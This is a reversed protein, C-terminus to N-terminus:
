SPARRTISRSRDPKPTIIKQSLTNLYVDLMTFCIGLRADPVVTYLPVCKHRVISMRFDQDRGIPDFFIQALGTDFQHLNINIRFSIFGTMNGPCCTEIPLCLQLVLDPAIDDAFFSKFFQNAASPNRGSVCDDNIPIIVIPEGRIAEPQELNVPM